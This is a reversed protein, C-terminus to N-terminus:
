TRGGLMARCLPLLIVSVILVLALRFRCRAIPHPDITSFVGKREVHTKLVYLGLTAGGIGLSEQIVDAWPACALEPM